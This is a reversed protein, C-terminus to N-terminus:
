RGEEAVVAAKLADLAAISGEYWGALWVSRALDTALRLDVGAKDLGIERSRKLAEPWFKAFARLAAEDHSM